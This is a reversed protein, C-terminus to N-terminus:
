VNFLQTPSNQEAIVLHLDARINQLFREMETKAHDPTNNIESLHALILRKLRVHMVQSIIGVAQVNSLHGHMSNIRQKVEWPYPGEHLLIEDHNSELVLTTADKLHKILLKSPYGVDTAVALKADNNGMQQITFNCSDVADHPSSFPHIVLDGINFPKGPDFFYVRGHLDGLKCECPNFTEPTVFVPIQQLRSVAGIGKVHDSHEHSIIVAKLKSRPIKFQELALWVRKASIGVDILIATSDSQVLLCNGKSGSAIVSTQFM